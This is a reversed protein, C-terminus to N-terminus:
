KENLLKIAKEVQTKFARLAELNDFYYKEKNNQFPVYVAQNIDWQNFRIMFDGKSIFTVSTDERKITKWENSFEYIYMLAKSLGELEDVDLYWYDPCFLSETGEATKQECVNIKLGKLKENETEVQYVVVAELKLAKNSSNIIDPKIHYLDRIFTVGKRSVFKELKTGTEVHKQEPERKQSCMIFFPIVVISLVIKLYRM